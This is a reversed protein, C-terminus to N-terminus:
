GPDRILGMFLPAGTAKETLVFLFPRDARIDFDQLPMGSAEMIAGSAAAAEVGAENFEVFTKQVVESIFIRDPAVDAIGSFEAADPAFARAMGMATLTEKLDQAEYETTFRPLALSGTAVRADRGLAGLQRADMEDLLDEAAVGDAPVVVWVTVPGDTSLAVGDFRDTLLVPAELERANMMEVGRTEGDALTFTDTTTDGEDFHEWKVKLHVTNFLALITRENFMGPQVIHRIRGATHQEVWDNIAAAAEGSDSPLERTEADFYDRNAHLFAPRFPVGERLWLSDAIRIEPKEGAQALWILDAWGQDMAALDLDGLALADRMERATAGEAGNLAMALVAHLSVPSVVVNGDPSAAAQRRLLELGFTNLPRALARAAASGPDASGRAPRPPSAAAQDSRTLLYAAVAGAAAVAVLVLVVIVRRM